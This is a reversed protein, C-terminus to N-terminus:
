KSDRRIPEAWIKFVGDIPDEYYLADRYKSNPKITRAINEAEEATDAEFSVALNWKGM